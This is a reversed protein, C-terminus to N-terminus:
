LHHGLCFHVGRDKLNPTPRPAVLGLGYFITVFGLPLWLRDGATTIIIIINIVTIAFLKSDKIEGKNNTV